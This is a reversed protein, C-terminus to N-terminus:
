SEVRLLLFCVLSIFGQRSSYGETGFRLSAGTAISRHWSVMSNRAWQGPGARGWFDLAANKFRPAFRINPFSRDVHTYFDWFKKRSSTKQATHLLPTPPPPALPCIQHLCFGYFDPCFRHFGECVGQFYPCFRRGAHNLKFFVPVWRKCFWM